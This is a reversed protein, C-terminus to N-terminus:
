WLKRCGEKEELDALKRFLPCYKKWFGDRGRHSRHSYSNWFVDRPRVKLWTEYAIYVGPVYLFLVQLSHEPSFSLKLRAQYYMPLYLLGSELPTIEPRTPLNNQSLKQQLDDDPSISQM